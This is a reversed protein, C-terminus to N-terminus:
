PPRYPLFCEISYLYSKVRNTHLINRLYAIYTMKQCRNTQRCRFIPLPLVTYIAAHIEDSRSTEDPLINLEGAEIIEEINM